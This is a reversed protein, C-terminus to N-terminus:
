VFSIQLGFKVDCESVLVKVLYAALDSPDIKAAAESLSVIAESLSVVAEDAKPNENRAAGAGAGNSEDEVVYKILGM